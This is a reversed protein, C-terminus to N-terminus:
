DLECLKIWIFAHWHSKHIPIWISSNIDFLNRWVVSIMIIFSLVFTMRHKEIGAIQVFESRSHYIAERVFTWLRDTSMICWSIFWVCKSAVEPGDECRSWLDVSFTTCTEKTDASKWRRGFVNEPSSTKEFYDTILPYVLVVFWADFM